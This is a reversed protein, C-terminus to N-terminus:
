HGPSRSLLHFNLHWGPRPLRASRGTDMPQFGTKPGWRVAPTPSSTRQTGPPLPSMVSEMPCKRHAGCSPCLPVVHSPFPGEPCLVPPSPCPGVHPGGPGQSQFRQPSVPCCVLQSRHPREAPPRCGRERGQLQRRAIQPPPQPAGDGALVASQWQGTQESISLRLDMPRQTQPRCLWSSVQAPCTLAGPLWGLCTVM